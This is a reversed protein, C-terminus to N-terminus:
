RLDQEKGATKQQVLAVIDKMVTPDDSRLQSGCAIDENM